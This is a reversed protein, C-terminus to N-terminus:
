WSPGRAPRSRGRGRPSCFLNPLAHHRDLDRDALLGAEGADDIQDGHLGSAEGAVAVALRRRRSGPRARPRPRSRVARPQDLRDGLAVVRQHLAEELAARRGCSSSTSPRRRATTAGGSRGASGRPRRGRCRGTPAARRRGRGAGRGRRAHLRERRLVDAALVISARRRDRRAARRRQHELREGIGEGALDREQADDGAREVGVGVDPVGRRPASRTPLRCSSAPCAPPSRAPARDGAVDAGDGLQLDGDGAVRQAGLVLREADRQILTGSAAIANATSGFDCPPRPSSRRRGRVPQDVLVEGEVGPAVGLAVLVQEGAVALEVDLDGDGLQLVAVVDVDDEMRRLHGVALRDELGGVACPRCLFCVPPRPWNASQLILTSGSGRPSSKSNTSSIKPPEMGCCSGAPPRSPSGPPGGGRSGRRSDRHDVEPHPQEVALVM